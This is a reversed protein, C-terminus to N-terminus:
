WKLNQRRAAEAFEGLIDREPGVKTANWGHLSSAFLDYNDHHNAATAVYRAGWDAFRRITAEPDFKEAKWLRCVDKYGVKSQHGFTRRHYLWAESGWKERGLEPPSMYMHRAYWGGGKEPVTQPGWHLWLGFKADKFWEPCKWEAAMKPWESM